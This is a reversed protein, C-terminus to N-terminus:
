LSPRITWTPSLTSLYLAPIANNSGPVTVSILFSQTVTLQCPVISACLIVSVTYSSLSQERFYNQYNLTPRHATKNAIEINWGSVTGSILGFQTVTLQFPLIIDCLIVSVTYAQYFQLIRAFLIMYNVLRCTYDWM